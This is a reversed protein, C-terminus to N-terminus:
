CSDGDDADTADIDDDYNYTRANNTRDNDAGFIDTGTDGNLADDEINEADMINSANVYSDADAAYDDDVDYAGM